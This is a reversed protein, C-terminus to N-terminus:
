ILFSQYLIQFGKESVSTSNPPSYLIPKADYDSSRCALDESVLFLFETNLSIEVIGFTLLNESQITEFVSNCCDEAEFQLGSSDDCDQTDMGCGLEHSSSIILQSDVLDEGCYHSGITVGFNSLTLILIMLISTTKKM